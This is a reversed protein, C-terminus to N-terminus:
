EMRDQLAAKVEASARLVGLVKISKITARALAPTVDKTLVVVGVMRIDMQKRSTQLRELAKRNYTVAGLGMFQQTVTRQVTPAHTLLLNRVATRIFDTRSSFFGQEVLLDVQGLDVVSINFSVKETEIEAM